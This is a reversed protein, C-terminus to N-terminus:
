PNQKTQSISSLDQPHIIITTRQGKIPSTKIVGSIMDYEIHPGSLSNTGQSIKANGILIVYKKAAYYEIRDATAQFLPENPKPQVQYAAPIGTAIAKEIKSDKGRVMILKDATLRTSGQIIVVHGTYTGIGQTRDLTATDASITAPQNRDTDLAFSQTASSLCCAFLIWRIKRPIRRM